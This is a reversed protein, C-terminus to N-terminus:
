GYFVSAASIPCRGSVPARSRPRDEPGVPDGLAVWTRGQLAYMVFASRTDDFLLAKDRLFALNPFTLTQAAIAKEADQLDAATPIPAAHPAYGILRAFAFLALVVAAGVSARLFRSADAHLEFQWWLDSSYEVHRFAFLGLKLDVRRIALCGRPAGHARYRHSV